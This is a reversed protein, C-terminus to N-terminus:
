ADALDHGNAIVKNPSDASDPDRINRDALADSSHADKAAVLALAMIIWLKADYFNSIVMGGVILVSMWGASLIRAHIRKSFFTCKAVLVVLTLQVLTLLIGGDLMSQLWVNNVVVKNLSVGTQADHLQAIYLGYNSPGVGIWFHQAALNLAAWYGRLRPANSSQENPNFISLFQSAVVEPISPVTVCLAVVVVVIAGLTWWFIKKSILRNKIPRILILLLPLTLFVARSNLLILTILLVVIQLESYKPRSISRRVIAVVIALVLFYGFVAPEYSFSSIRGVGGSVGAYDVFQPFGIYFALLQYLGFFSAFLAGWLVWNLMQRFQEPKTAIVLVSCAPVVAGVIVRFVSLFATTKDEALASALITVGIMSLVTLVIPRPAITRWPFQGSLLLLAVSLGFSVISIKVNFDGVGVNGVRDWSVTFLGVQCLVIALVAATRRWNRLWAPANTTTPWRVRLREFRRM